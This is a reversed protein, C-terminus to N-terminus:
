ERELRWEGDVFHIGANANPIRGHGFYDGDDVNLELADDLKDAIEAYLYTTDIQYSVRYSSKVLPLRPIKCIFVGREPLEGFKQAYLQNSQTFVPLGLATKVFLRVNLEPYKKATRNEFHLWIEIDQGSRASGLPGGGPERLDVATVAIEGNGKHDTRERVSRGTQTNAAAYFAIAEEQSGQFKLRGSELVIGRNCLAEVAGISHSVFLVTRGSQAVDSMKGLCKSQFSSDGVALVEDVILIEPELHAAVAFALRVRMGSSYHKVPTDLFSEVGSFAAIQDFKSAVEQHSMGLIAGNLYVNERGTLEMHFGTGVELLSAVRGRLYVRGETPNTIRSLIKLLTSKGAGNRGLIGVVEGEEVEFNLEKLAWFQDQDAESESDSRKLLGSAKRRLAEYFRRRDIEGKLYSKGLNEAKLALAM